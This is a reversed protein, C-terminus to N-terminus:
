CEIDCYKVVTCYNCQVMSHNNHTMSNKQCHSCVIFAARAEERTIMEYPAMGKKNRGYPNAGQSILYIAVEVTGRIAAVHLPTNGEEDAIDPKAGAKILLKLIDSQSNHRASKLLPTRKKYDMENVDAKAIILRECIGLNEQMCALALASEMHKNKKRPNAGFKLLLKVIELHGNISAKMLATLTLSDESDIDFTPIQSRLLKARHLLLTETLEVFGGSSALHM